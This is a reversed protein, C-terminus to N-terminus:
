LRAVTRVQQHCVSSKLPRSFVAIQVWKGGTQDEPAQQLCTYLTFTDIKLQCEDPTIVCAGSTDEPQCWIKWNKEGVLDTESKM